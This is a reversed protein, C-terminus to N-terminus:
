GRGLNMSVTLDLRANEIGVVEVFVELQSDDLWNFTVSEVHDTRGYPDAELAETIQRDLISEAEEKTLAKIADEREIGFDTSYVRHAYRETLLNHRCWQAWSDFGTADVAKNQGDRIFDGKDYDFAVGPKYGTVSDSAAGSLDVENQLLENETEIPFLNAM